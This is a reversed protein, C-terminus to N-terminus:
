NEKSFVKQMPTSHTLRQEKETLKEQIIEALTRRPGSNFQFAEFAEEDRKNMKYNRTVEDNFAKDDDDSGENDSDGEDGSLNEGLKPLKVSKVVKTPGTETQLDQMQLRAQTLIQKSLKEDIFEDTTTEDKREKRVKVRGSPAAFEDKQIHDELPTNRPAKPIKLKKAKGM